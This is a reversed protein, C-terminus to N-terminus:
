ASLDGTVPHLPSIFWDGLRIKASEAKRFFTTRDDVLLPYKLFSHDGFLSEPVHNRGLSSLCDSYTAANRARLENMGPLARLARFGRRAQASSHGKFYDPPIAPSATEERTSSGLILNRRSLYRLLKLFFWYTADNFLMGKALYLFLLSAVDRGSPRLLGKCVGVM